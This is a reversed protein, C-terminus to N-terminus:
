LSLQVVREQIHSSWRNFYSFLRYAKELMPLMEGRSKSDEAEWKANLAKLEGLL